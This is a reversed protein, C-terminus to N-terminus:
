GNVPHWGLVLNEFLQGVLPDRAIQEAKEIGLLFSLLGTDTFYYKPWIM